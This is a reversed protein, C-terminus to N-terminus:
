LIKHYIKNKAMAKKSFFCAEELKQRAISLERSGEGCIVLIENLANDFVETIMRASDFGSQNLAYTKFEDNKVDAYM